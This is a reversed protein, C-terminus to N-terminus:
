LCAKAGVGSTTPTIVETDAAIRAIAQLHPHITFERAGAIGPTRPDASSLKLSFFVPHVPFTSSFIIHLLSILITKICQTHGAILWNRSLATHNSKRNNMQRADAASGSLSACFFGFDDSLPM